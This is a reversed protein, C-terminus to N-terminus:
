GSIEANPDNLFDLFMKCIKIGFNFRGNYYKALGPNKQEGDKSYCFELVRYKCYLVFPDPILFGDALGIVNPGRQEYVLELNTVSTSQPWIGVNQLGVKDRFYVRPGTAAQQQWRYIITDLHSQSTERLAYNNTAVRTPKQCDAPLAAAQTSPAVTVATSVAIVLPCEDLFDNVATALYALMEEQTFFPDTPQRVPFTAGTISEGSAHVNVFVATFSTGPVTSVIEVVEVNSTGVGVIIQAGPYMALDYSVVVHTGVAIGGTPVVTNVSPEILAYAVDTLVDNVLLYGVGALPAM